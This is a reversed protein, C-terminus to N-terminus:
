KKVEEKVVPIILHDIGLSLKSLLDSIWKTQDIYRRWLEARVEPPQSEVVTQILKTISELLAILATLIALPTM